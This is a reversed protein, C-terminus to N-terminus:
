DEKEEFNLHLGRFSNYRWVAELKELAESVTYGLRRAEREFVEKPITTELSRGERGTQRIAYKKILVNKDDLNIDTNM